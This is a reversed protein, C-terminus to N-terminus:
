DFLTTQEWDNGTDVKSIPVAQEMENRISRLTKKNKKMNGVYNRAKKVSKRWKEEDYLLAWMQIMAVTDFSISSKNDNEAWSCFIINNRTYWKDNDLRDVSINTYNKGKKGKGVKHTLKIEPNYMCHFNTIRMQTIFIRLFDFWSVDFNKKYKRSRSNLGNYKEKLYGILESRRKFEVQSVHTHNDKKWKSSRRIECTKCSSYHGDKNLKEKKITPGFKYFETYPLVKKCTACQKMADM